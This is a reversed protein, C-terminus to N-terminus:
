SSRQYQGCTPKNGECRDPHNVTYLALLMLSSGLLKLNVFCRVDEDDADFAETRGASQAILEIIHDIEGDVPEVQLFPNSLPDDSSTELQM